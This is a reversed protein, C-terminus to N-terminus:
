LFINKTIIWLNVKSTINRIFFINTSVFINEVWLPLHLVKIVFFAERFGTFLLLLAPRSGSLESFFLLWSLFEKFSHKNQQWGAHPFKSIKHDSNKCTYFVSVYSEKSFLSLQYALLEKKAVIRAAISKYNKMWRSQM